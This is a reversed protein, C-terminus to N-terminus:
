EFVSSTIFKIDINNANEKVDRYMEKIEDNLKGWETDVNLSPLHVDAYSENYKDLFGDFGCIYIKAKENNSNEFLFDLFRLACIVANDFHMFGRKIAHNYSVIYEYPSALEGRSTEPRVEHAGTKINSLVIKKTEDFIDKYANEAYEYRGKNVFFLYDYKYSPLIANVGIVIPSNDKIFNDIKNKEDISSRGPAVLLIKRGTNVIENKLKEVVKSDDITKNQNEVYKNELYDYDYARREKEGMSEIISRMDKHSTNHNNLLYAINNVHTTYIGAIFYPTSYGWTYKEKFYTMYLDIADMVSDLDYHKDYKKNLYNVILETTANGAGRGMGNLSADLIIERKDNTKEIVKIFSVANSFALQQNNHTHIGFSINIDLNKNIVSAIREVDDEYMAGFTDVMYIGEPKFENMKAVADKLDEDTYNLTNALQFYVKYGKERIGKGVFIGEEIKGYPFVIRIADISKGDNQPLYKLDYRNYDIMMCYMTSINKKKMYTNVDSPVHYFSSGIKHEENKLWGVEVIDIRSDTLKDIIGRISAEGFEGSVIYAGDRLTCDLIKINM